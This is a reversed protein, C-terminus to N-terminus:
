TYFSHARIHFDTEQTHADHTQGHCLIQQFFGATLNQTVVHHFLLPLAEDGRAAGNGLRLLDVLGAVDDHLDQGGVGDDPVAHFLGDFKALGAADDHVQAGSSRVDNLFQVLQRLVGTHVQQIRGDAAAIGHGNGTRQGNHCATVLLSKLFHLGQQLAHAGRHVHAAGGAAADGLQHVVHHGAGIQHSHGLAIGEGGLRANVELGGELGGAAAEGSTGEIVVFNGLENVPVVLGAGPHGDM